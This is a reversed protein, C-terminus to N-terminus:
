AGLLMQRIEPVCSGCNTGAKLAQGVAEVSTLGDGAIHRQLTKRGVGFCACVQPGTDAEPDSPAGVLLALRAADELRDQAFLRALWGRDPLDLRPSVFLCAQICDDEIWAARYRGAGADEMDLWDVESDEVGLLRRAQLRWGAVAGRGALEYRLFQQGRVRVWYDTTRMPLPVRSLAFGHWAVAFPEVRVPTHKFEPEGSHPDVEPNVVRGILADSATTSSWHIPAFVM